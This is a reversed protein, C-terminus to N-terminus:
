ALPLDFRVPLDLFDTTTEIDPATTKFKGEPNSVTLSITASDGAIQGDALDLSRTWRVQQKIRGFHNVDSLSPPLPSSTVKMEAPLIQQTRVTVTPEAFVADAAFGRGVLRGCPLM